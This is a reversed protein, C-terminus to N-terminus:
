HEDPELLGRTGSGDTGTREEASLQGSLEIIDPHFRVLRDIARDYLAITDSSGSMPNGHVDHGTTM